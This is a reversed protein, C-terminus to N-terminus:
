SVVHCQVETRDNTVAQSVSYKKETIVLSGITAKEKKVDRVFPGIIERDQNQARGLRPKVSQRLGPAANAIDADVRHACMGFSRTM